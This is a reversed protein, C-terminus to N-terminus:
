RLPSSIIERIKKAFGKETVALVARKEKGLVHGLDQMRGYEALTVRYHACKDHFKKKTQASADEAVVVLLASGNKVAALTQEEGSVLCGARLCLGFIADEKRM